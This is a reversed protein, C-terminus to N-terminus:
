DISNFNSSSVATVSFHMKATADAMPNVYNDIASSFAWGAIALAKTRSVMM